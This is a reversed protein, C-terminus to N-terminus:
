IKVASIPIKVTQKVAMCHSSLDLLYGFLTKESLGYFILAIERIYELTVFINM